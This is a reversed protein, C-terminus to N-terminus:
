ANHPTNEPTHTHTRIRSFTPAPRHTHPDAFATHRRARSVLVINWTSKRTWTRESFRIHKNTIDSLQWPVARNRHLKDSSQIIQQHTHPPNVPKHTLTHPWVSLPQLIFCSIHHLVFLCPVFSLGRACPSFQVASAEAPDPSGPQAFVGPACYTYNPTHTHSLFTTYAHAHTAVYVMLRADCVCVCAFRSQLECIASRRTCAFVRVSPSRNAATCIHVGHIGCALCGVCVCVRLCRIVFLALSHSRAFSPTTFICAHANLVRLVRM